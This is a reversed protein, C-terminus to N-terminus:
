TDVPLLQLLPLEVVLVLGVEVARKLVASLNHPPTLEGDQVDDSDECEGEGWLVPQLLLFAVWCHVIHVNYLKKEERGLSTLSIKFDGLHQVM